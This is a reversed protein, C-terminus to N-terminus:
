YTDEEKNLNALVNNKLQATEATLAQQDKLKNTNSYAFYAGGLSFLISLIFLVSKM